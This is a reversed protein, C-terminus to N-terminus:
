LQCRTLPSYKPLSSRWDAWKGLSVNYGEMVNVTSYLTWTIHPTRVHTGSRSWSFWMRFTTPEGEWSSRSQMTFSFTHTVTSLEEINVTGHIERLGLAVKLGKREFGGLWPASEERFCVM